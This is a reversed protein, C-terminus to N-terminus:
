TCCHASNKRARALMESGITDLVESRAQISSTGWAPLAATAAAAAQDIHTADGQAYEAIADGLTSPNLNLSYAIGRKWEGAIFHHHQKM